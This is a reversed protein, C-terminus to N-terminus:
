PYWPRVSTNLESGFLAFVADGLRFPRPPCDQALRATAFVAARCQATAREFWDPSHPEAGLDTAM